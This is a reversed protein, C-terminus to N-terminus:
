KYVMHYTTIQVFLATIFVMIKTLLWKKTQSVIIIIVIILLLILHNYYYYTIIIAIIIIITIIIATFTVWWSLLISYGLHISRAWLYGFALIWLIRNLRLHNFYSIIKTINNAKIGIDSRTFCGCSFCLAEFASYLYHHVKSSVYKCSYSSADNKNFPSEADLGEAMIKM